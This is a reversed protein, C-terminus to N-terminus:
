HLFFTAKSCHNTYSNMELCLLLIFSFIFCFYGDFHDEKLQRRYILLIACAWFYVQRYLLHWLFDISTFVSAFVFVLLVIYQQAEGTYENWDFLDTLHSLYVVLLTSLMLSCGILEALRTKLHAALMTCSLLLTPIGSHIVLLLIYSHTSKDENEFNRFLLCLCIM